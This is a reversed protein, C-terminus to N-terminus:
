LSRRRGTLLGALVNFLVRVLYNLSGERIGIHERLEFLLAYCQFLSWLQKTSKHFRSFDSGENCEQKSILTFEDGFSGIPDIATKM